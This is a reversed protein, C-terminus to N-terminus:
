NIELGLHKIVTDLREETRTQRITVSAIELENKQHLSIFGDVHTIMDNKVADIKADLSNVKSDLSDVKSDLSDFKNELIRLDEKSAANDKIFNVVELIENIQTNEEKM